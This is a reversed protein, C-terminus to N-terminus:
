LTWIRDSGSDWQATVDGGNLTVPLGTATDINAVVASTSDTGTHQYIVIAECPDGAAASWTVDAADATGLAKTKSGMAGSVEERAGAAIDDLFDDTTLNPTYDAEDILIARFDDADWDLDGGLFRERGGLGYLANAM